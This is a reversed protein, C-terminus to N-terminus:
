VPRPKTRFIASVTEDSLSNELFRLTLRDWLWIYGYINLNRIKTELDSWSFDNSSFEEKLKKNKFQSILIKRLDAIKGDEVHVTRTLSILARAESLAFLEDMEELGIWELMSNYWALDRNVQTGIKSLNGSKFILNDAINGKLTIKHTAM